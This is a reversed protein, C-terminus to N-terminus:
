ALRNSVGAPPRAHSFVLGHGVAISPIEFRKAHLLGPLDGDSVICVPREHQMSEKAHRLRERLLPIAELRMSPLLSEVSEFPRADFAPQAGPGAYVRVRYGAGILAECLVSSRTGHGRGRGHVYLDILPATM